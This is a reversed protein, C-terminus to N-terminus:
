GSVFWLAEVCAESHVVPNEGQMIGSACSAQHLPSAIFFVSSMGFFLDNPSHINIAVSNNPDAM